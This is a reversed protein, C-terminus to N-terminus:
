HFKKCLEGGIGNNRVHKVAFMDMASILPAISASLVNKVVLNGAFRVSSMRIIMMLFSGIVSEV